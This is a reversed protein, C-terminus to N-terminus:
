TVSKYQKAINYGLIYYKRGKNIGFLLILSLFSNFLHLFVHDKEHFKISHEKNFSLDVMGIKTILHNGVM